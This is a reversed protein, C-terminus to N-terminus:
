AGPSPVGEAALIATQLEVAGATDPHDPGLSQQMGAAAVDVLERAEALRGLGLLLASLEVCSRMTDPHGEGLISRRRELIRRHGREGEAARGLARKCCAVYFGSKLVDPHSDGLRTEREALIQQHLELAEGFDRLDFLARALNSRAILLASPDLGPNGSRIAIVKRVLAVSEPLRGLSRYTAALSNMSLLTEESDEGLAKARLPVLNEFLDLAEENRGMYFYARGQQHRARSWITFDKDRDVIGAAGRAHDLASPYQGLAIESTATAILMEATAASIGRRREDLTAASILMVNLAQHFEGAIELARIKEEVSAEPMSIVRAADDRTIKRLEGVSIQYKQAVLAAVIEYDRMRAGRISSELSELLRRLDGIVSSQLNQNAIVIELKEKLVLQGGVVETRSQEIARLISKLDSEVHSFFPILTEEILHKLQGVRDIIATLCEPISKGEAGQSVASLIRSFYLMEVAAHGKGGRAADGKVVGWLATGFNKHLGKVLVDREGRSLDGQPIVEDVFEEWTGPGLVEMAGDKEVYDTLLSTVNEERLEAFKGSPDSTIKSLHRAIKDGADTFADSVSGFENKRQDGAAKVSARVADALLAEIDHNKFVERATPKSKAVKSSFWSHVHAGAVGALWTLAGGVAAPAVSPALAVLALGSLVAIVACKEPSISENEIM